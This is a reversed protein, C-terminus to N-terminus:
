ETCSTHRSPPQMAPSTISDEGNNDHDDDDDNDDVNDNNDYDYPSLLPPNGSFLIACRVTNQDFMYQFFPDDAFVTQICEVAQAIDSRSLPLIQIDM